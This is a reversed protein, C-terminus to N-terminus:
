NQNFKQRQMNGIRVHAIAKILGAAPSSSGNRQDPEANFGLRCYTCVASSNLLNCVSQFYALRKCGYIDCTVIMLLLAIGGSTYPKGDPSPPALMNTEDTLKVFWILGYIGCTVISLIICLAINKQQIM